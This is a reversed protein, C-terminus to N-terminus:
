FQDSQYVEEGPYAPYPVVQPEPATQTNQTFPAQGRTLQDMMAEVSKRKTDNWAQDPRLAPSIDPVPKKKVQSQTPPSSAGALTDFPTSFEFLAKRSSSDVRQQQRQSVAPQSPEPAREVSKYTQPLYYQDM